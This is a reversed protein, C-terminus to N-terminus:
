RDWDFKMGFLETLERNYPRFYEVLRARTAAQMPSYKGENLVAFGKPTWEDLGLFKLAETYVLAPSTFFDESRLILMQGAPFISRWRRLHNVYIGQATYSLYMHNYLPPAPDRVIREEEGELRTREQDLAREFTLMERGSRVMHQYHSYARDVPNRLIAILKAQPLLDHIRAAALPHFIYYPSAEGTTRGARLRSRLPFHARYWDIGESYNCDFFKIEKRFPAAVQPHMALYNFLSTTGCKQAGILLFSPMGRWPSSIRQLAWRAVLRPNRKLKSLDIGPDHVLM